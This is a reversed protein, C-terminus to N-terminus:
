RKEKTLSGTVLEAQRIREPFERFAGLAARYTFMRTRPSSDFTCWLATGDPSKRTVRGPMGALSVVDGPYPMAEPDVPRWKYPRNVSPM